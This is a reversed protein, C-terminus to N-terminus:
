GKSLEHQIDAAWNIIREDLPSITSPYMRAISGDPDILFKFFNWSVEYDSQGNLEKNCLWRYLPHVPEKLIHIKRSIPFTVMYELLCDNSIEEETGPEQAGFDNCPLGIIVLKEGLSDYLEQLEKYQSTFACESAVNVILMRVGRFAALDIVGGDIAELKLDYISGINMGTFNSILNTSSVPKQLLSQM